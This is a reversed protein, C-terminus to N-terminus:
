LKRKKTEAEAADSSACAIVEDTGFLQETVREPSCCRKVLEDYEKLLARVIRSGIRDTVGQIAMRKTPAGKAAIIGDLSAVVMINGTDM